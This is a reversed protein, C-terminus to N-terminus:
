SGGSGKRGRRRRGIEGTVGASAGDTGVGVAVGDFAIEDTPAAGLQNRPVVFDGVAGGDIPVSVRRAEEGPSLLFEAADELTNEFGGLVKWELGGIYDNAGGANIRV